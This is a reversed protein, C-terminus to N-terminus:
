SGGQCLGVQVELGAVSGLVGVSFEMWSGPRLASRM